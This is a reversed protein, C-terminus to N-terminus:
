EDFVAELIELSQIKQRVELQACIYNILNRILVQRQVRGMSLSLIKAFNMGLLQAFLAAIEEDMMTGGSRYQGSWFGTELDFFRLANESQPKIGHIEMWDLLYLLHVNSPHELDDCLLLCKKLSEYLSKSPEKERSARLTLECMFLTISSRLVDQPLHKYAFSRKLGRISQVNKNAQYACSFEVMAGPHVILQSKSKSSGFGRVLVAMRGETETFVNVVSSGSKYPTSHLVVADFSSYM